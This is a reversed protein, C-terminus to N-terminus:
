VYFWILDIAWHNDNRNRLQLNSEWLPCLNENQFERKSQTGQLEDLSICIFDDM